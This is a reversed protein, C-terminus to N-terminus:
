QLVVKKSVIGTNFHLQVFYIGANNNSIDMTYNASVQGNVQLQEVVQGMANSLTIHSLEDSKGAFSINIVGNTPNPALLIENNNEVSSVSTPWFAGRQNDLLPFLAGGPELEARMRSVQDNSFMKTCVDGSYDMYNMYMEGGNHSKQACNPQFGTPCSSNAEEQLPTDDLGDDDSCSKTGAPTSKGWIHWINFFHGMEHTLTRGKQTKNSYFKNITATRRGLTLYHLVIGGLKYDNYVSTAYGPNYGYGLIQGGGGQTPNINTVWVNIYKTVDWPESGGQAAKKVADEHVDYGTFSAPKNKYIIGLKANGNEDSRAFEFHINANGIDDTFASPVASIDGNSASFDENLAKLQENIREIIGAQGGLEAIQADNLVIHFVIPLIVRDYTTATGKSRARREQSMKHNEADYKAFYDAFYAKLYPDQEAKQQILENGCITGQAYTPNGLLMFCLVGIVSFVKKM